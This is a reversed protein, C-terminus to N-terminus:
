YKIDPLAETMLWEIKEGELRLIFVISTKETLPEIYSILIELFTYKGIEKM